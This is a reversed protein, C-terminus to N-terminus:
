RWGFWKGVDKFPKIDSSIAVKQNKRYGELPLDVLEHDVRSRVAGNEVVGQWKSRDLFFYFGDCPSPRHLQRHIRNGFCTYSSNIERGVVKDHPLIKGLKPLNRPLLNKAQDAHIEQGPM